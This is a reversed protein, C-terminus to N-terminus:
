GQTGIRLLNTEPCCVVAADEPQPLAVLRPVNASFRLGLTLMRQSDARWGLARIAIETSGDSVRSPGDGCDVRALGRTKGIGGFRSAAADGRALLEAAVWSRVHASSDQLLSRFAREGDEGAKLMEMVAERMADVLRHDRSPPM